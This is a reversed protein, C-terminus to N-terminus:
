RISQSCGFVHDASQGVDGRRSVSLDCSSCCPVTEHLQQVAEVRGAEDHSMHVVHSQCCCRLVRSGRVGHVGRAGGAGRAGPVRSAM